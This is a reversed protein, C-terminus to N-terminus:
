SAAVPCRSQTQFRCHRRALSSFSTTIGSRPERQRARYQQGKRLTHSSTPAKSCLLYASAAPDHLSTLITTLLMTSVPMLGADSNFSKRAITHLQYLVNKRMRLVATDFMPPTLTGYMVHLRGCCIIASTPHSFSACCSANLSPSPDPFKSSTSPSAPPPCPSSSSDHSSRSRSSSQAHFIAPSIHRSFAPSNEKLRACYIAVCGDGNNLILAM